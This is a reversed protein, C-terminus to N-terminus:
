RPPLGLNLLPRAQIPNRHFSRFDALPLDRLIHFMVLALHHYTVAM